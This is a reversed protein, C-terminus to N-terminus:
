HNGVEVIIKQGHILRDKPDAEILKVMLSSPLKTLGPIVELKKSSEYISKM